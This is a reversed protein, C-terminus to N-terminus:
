RTKEKAKKAGKEAAGAAKHAGKKAGKKTARGADKAAKKSESGAKKMDQKAGSDQAYYVGPLAFATLTGILLLRRM